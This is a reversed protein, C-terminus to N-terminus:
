TRAAGPAIEATAEGLTSSIYRKEDAVSPALIKGLLPQPDLALEPLCLYCDFRHDRRLHCRDIVRHDQGALCIIQISCDRCDRGGQRRVTVDKWEQFADGMDVDQILFKAPVPHETARCLYLRRDHRIARDPLEVVPSRKGKALLRPIHRLAYSCQGRQELRRLAHLDERDGVDNLSHPFLQNVERGCGSHGAQHACINALNDAGRIAALNKEILKTTASRYSRGVAV